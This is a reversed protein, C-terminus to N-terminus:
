NTCILLCLSPPDEVTIIKKQGNKLLLYLDLLNVISQASDFLLKPINKIRRYIHLRQCRQWLCSLSDWRRLVYIFVVFCHVFLSCLLHRDVLYFGQDQLVFTLALIMLSLFPWFFM